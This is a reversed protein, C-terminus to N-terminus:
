EFFRWADQMLKNVNVDKGYGKVLARRSPENDMFMIMLRQKPLHDKLVLVPLIQAIAELILIYARKSCFTEHVLAARQRRCVVHTAQNQGRLWLWQLLSGPQQQGLRPLGGRRGSRGWGMVLADVGVGDLAPM